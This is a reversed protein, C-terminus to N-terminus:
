CCISRRVLIWIDPEECGSNAIKRAALSWFKFEILLPMGDSGDGYHRIDKVIFVQDMVQEANGWEGVKSIHVATNVAV